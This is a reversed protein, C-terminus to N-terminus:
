LVGGGDLWTQVQASVADEGPLAKSAPMNRGCGNCTQTGKFSCGTCRAGVGRPREERFRSIFLLSDLGLKGAEQTTIKAERLCLRAHAPALWEAVKFERAFVIKDVDSLVKEALPKLYACLDSFNWM